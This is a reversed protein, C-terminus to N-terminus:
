ARYFRNAVLLEMALVIAVMVILPPYLERGVRSTSINREIQERTHALQFKLPGFWAALEQDSLRDLRTQQPAYNVSFGLSVGKEGGAELRYNGVQETTTIPLERRELNAPYSSSRGDPTFLLYSRRQGAADLRLVATQGALYNLQQDGSGVLYTAMQNALIVFPCWGVGMTDLPLLNWPDRNPSDSVPTTMTIARGRGVPRELMAPRGDSYPVVIGVGKSIASFEWYRFVPFADWPTSDARSRFAALIPHQFDRPALYLDGRAQRLLKGPLLAQAQPENFSDVPSTNRGLFIAVGHGEAAFDALKQWTGPELPTPDLLFVAAYEGLQRKPLDALDCVDCTFRAQRRKQFENPALAQTLYLAYREAPKPAAVLLKWAPKVAVTFYRTDDAALGDQGVIRVFGQHTGPELEAVRFEVPRLEGPAAEISRVGASHMKGDAGKLQLEVSRTAPAGVCSLQTEVSLASRNSLVEGSLHVEGLGYDTPNAVGVDIVYIGVGRLDTLKQRLAAAQEEAWAGRSLDTFLYIEKRYIGKKALDEQGLLKVAADIAVSLPQSNAVSTLNSTRDKAAGRDPQFVNGSGVQTDVVAIESQEPLQALLWLGLEKAVELRTKNEHRYEMRPAADFVLAAAVPAEQSGASTGFNVSPRALAFALLAIIGARLLLLLLHRLRLRRRNMDARQQIFRLAPFELLTPKRRMILHLVIPVAILAAGALLSLNVFTM